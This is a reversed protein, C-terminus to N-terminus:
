NFVVINSPFLFLCKMIHAYVNLIIYVLSKRVLFNIIALFLIHYMYNEFFYQQFTVNKVEPRSVGELVNILIQHCVVYIIFLLLELLLMAKFQLPIFSLAVYIV